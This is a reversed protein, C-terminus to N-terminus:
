STFVLVADDRNTECFDDSLTCYALVQATTEHVSITGPGHNLSKVENNWTLMVINFAVVTFVVITLHQLVANDRKTEILLFDYM